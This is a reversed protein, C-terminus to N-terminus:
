ERPDDLREAARIAAAIGRPVVILLVANVAAALLYLGAMAIDSLEAWAALYSLGIGWPLTLGQMTLWREHYPLTSLLSQVAIGACLLLYAVPLLHWRSM